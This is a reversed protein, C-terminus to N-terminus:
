GSRVCFMPCIGLLEPADPAAGAFTDTIPQALVVVAGDGVALALASMGDAPVEHVDRDIIRRAQGVGLDEVVLLGPGRDAEQAARDGEVGAV